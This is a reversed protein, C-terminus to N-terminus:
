QFLSTHVYQHKLWTINLDAWINPFELPIKNKHQQIFSRFSINTSRLCIDTPSFCGENVSISRGFPMDSAALPSTRKSLQSIDKLSHGKWALQANLLARHPATNLETPWLQFCWEPCGSHWNCSAASHFPLCLGYRCHSYGSHSVWTWKPSVSNLLQLYSSPYLFGRTVSHDDAKSDASETTPQKQQPCKYLETYTELIPM